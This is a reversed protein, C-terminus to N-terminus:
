FVNLFKFLLSCWLLLFCIRSDLLNSLGKEEQSSDFLPLFYHICIEQVSYYLRKSKNKMITYIYYYM